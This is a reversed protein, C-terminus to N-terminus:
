RTSRGMFTLFIYLMNHTWKLKPFNHTPLTQTGFLKQDMVKKLFKKSNKQCRIRVWRTNKYWFVHKKITQKSFKKRWNKGFPYGQQIFNPFKQHAMVKRALSPNSHLLNWFISYFILFKKICLIRHFKSPPPTLPFKRFIRFNETKEFYKPTKSLPHWPFYKIFISYTIRCM